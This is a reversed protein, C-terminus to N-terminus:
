LKSQIAILMDGVNKFESIEQAKFRIKFAKEVGVVIQIHTLSDWDEIDDATSTESININEEDLVDEFVEKVKTLIAEKNM